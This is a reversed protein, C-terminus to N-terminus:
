ILNMSKLDATATEVSDKGEKNKLPSFEQNRDVQLTIFSNAYKFIDFYFLEFKLTPQEIVGFDEDLQKLNKIALHYPLDYDVVDNIFLLKFAHIGINANNFQNAAAEDLESYEYVTDKQNVHVLRGVSENPKPQISKTTIEKSNKYTYGAFVPDLVKVLVNDINNLFIYEVGNELMEALYGAKKLSKFVGGNGNPTELINGDADLVLKGEESLAVINDQEFFHIHEADYGFYGQDEFYLQTERNNVKSTMIYWDIYVGTQEHLAILQKAQLEFLSVGEIEFSGKPGKYGLRTGQGGAMLLVAFKGNKIADIGISEYENLLSESLTNKVEYKVEDVETVDDIVQKNVYLDEYLDRINSLNLSDVKNALQEKENSSMMKEFEILHAQNYKELEKKDLM